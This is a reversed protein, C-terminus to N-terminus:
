ARQVCNKNQNVVNNVNNEKCRFCGRDARNKCLCSFESVDLGYDYNCNKCWCNNCKSEDFM